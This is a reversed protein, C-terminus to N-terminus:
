NGKLSELINQRTCRISKLVFVTLDVAIVLILLSFRIPVFRVHMQYLSIFFVVLYIACMLILYSKHLQVFGYGSLKRVAINSKFSEFYTKIVFFTLVLLGILSFLVQVLETTFIEFCESIYASFVDAVQPTELIVKDLGYEKITPLLAEYPEESQPNLLYCHTLYSMLTSPKFVQPDYILIQPNDIKGLSNTAREPHFSYIDQDARYVICNVEIPEEGEESYAYKWKKVSEEVTNDSESVLINLKGKIFDERKILTGDTKVLPNIDLYNENITIYNQGNTQAFTEGPIYSPQYNSTEIIIGHYKEVTADYFEKSREIVIDRTEASDLDANIPSFRTTVYGVTKEAMQLGGAYAHYASAAFDIAISANSILLVTFILKVAVSLVLASRKKEKGKIYHVGNQRCVLFCILAFVACAVVLWLLLDKICATFFPWVANPWFLFICLLAACVILVFSLIFWKVNGIVEEKIITLNTYGSLKKIVNRKGRFVTYFVMGIILVLAPILASDTFDRERMISTPTDMIETIYGEQNLAEVVSSAMGSEVYFMAADLNYKSIESFDRITYDNYIWVGTLQRVQYGDVQAKTSLCEGKNLTQKNGETHVNLFHETFNTKYFLYHDKQESFDLTKYLIDTHLERMIEEIHKVYEANTNSDDKTVQMKVLGQLMKNECQISFNYVSMVTIIVFFLAFAAHMMKKM